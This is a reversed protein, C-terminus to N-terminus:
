GLPKFYLETGGGAEAPVPVLVLEYAVMVFARTEGHEGRVEPEIGLKDAYWTIVQEISATTQYVGAARKTAGPFLPLDPDEDPPIGEEVIGKPLGGPGPDNPTVRKPCASLSFLFLGALVALAFRPWNKM